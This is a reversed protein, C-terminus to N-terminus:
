GVRVRDEKRYLFLLPNGYMDRKDLDVVGIFEGQPTNYVGKVKGTQKALLKANQRTAERSTNWMHYQVQDKIAELIWFPLSHNVVSEDYTVLFEYKLSFTLNNSNGSVDYAESENALLSYLTLDYELVHASHISRTGDHFVVTHSAIGNQYKFNARIIKKVINERRNPNYKM